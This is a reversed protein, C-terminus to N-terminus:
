AQYLAKYGEILKQSDSFNLPYFRQIKMRPETNKHIGGPATICDWRAYDDEDRLTYGGKVRGFEESFVM